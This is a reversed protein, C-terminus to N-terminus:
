HIYIINYTIYKSNLYVFSLKQTSIDLAIVLYTMYFYQIFYTYKAM